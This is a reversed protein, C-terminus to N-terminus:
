SSLKRILLNAIVDIGQADLSLFHISPSLGPLDTNDCRIPLIYENGRQEVMRAIASRWEHITWARQAYELSVFM